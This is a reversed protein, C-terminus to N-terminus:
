QDLPWQRWFWFPMEPDSLATLDHWDSRRGLFRLTTGNKEFIGNPGRQWSEHARFRPGNNQLLWRASKIWILALIRKEGSLHM